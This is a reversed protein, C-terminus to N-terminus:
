SVWTWFGSANGCELKDVAMKARLQALEKACVSCIAPGGCRAKTGDKRPVVHGHGSNM